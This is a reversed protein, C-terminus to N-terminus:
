DGSQGRVFDAFSIHSEKPSFAMNHFFRETTAVAQADWAIRNPFMGQNRQLIEVMQTKNVAEFGPQGALKDVVDQASHSSLWQLTRDLMHQVKKVVEPNNTFVDERTALAAHVISGGLLDTSQKPAYLDVLKVAVGQAVLESAFPEDGMLADVSASSLAANQSERDQGTSIYQVDSPALGARQILYETLMHGMSRQTNTSSATGIRKGKLQSINHVHDKLKARLLFVYMASQSLQGIAFVHQGDARGAAIAPLGIALFDSNNSMLDRMALPGGSFYRLKLEMGEAHDAEIAKALYIPLYAFTGPGPVSLVITEAHTSAALLMGFALVACCNLIKNIMHSDGTSTQTDGRLENNWLGHKEAVYFIHTPYM